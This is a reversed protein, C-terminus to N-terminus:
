INCTPIFGHAGPLRWGLLYPGTSRPRSRTADVTDSTSFYATLASTASEELDDDNAQGCAYTPLEDVEAQCGVDGVDEVYPRGLDAVGVLLGQFGSDWENGM